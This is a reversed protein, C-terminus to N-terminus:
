FRNYEGYIGGSALQSPAIIAPQQKWSLMLAYLRHLGSIALRKATDLSLHREVRETLTRDKIAHVLTLRPAFLYILGARHRCSPGIIYTRLLMVLM